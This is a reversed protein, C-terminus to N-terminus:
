PYGRVFALQFPWTIPLCRASLALMVILLLNSPFTSQLCWKPGENNLIRMARAEKEDVRQTQKIINVIASELLTAKFTGKQHPLKKETFATAALNTYAAIADEVSMKLRFLMIVILRFLESSILAM